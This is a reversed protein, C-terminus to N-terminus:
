VFTGLQSVVVSITLLSVLTTAAVIAAITEADKEYELALLFVNVATPMSQALVISQMDQGRVGLLWCMGWALLPAAVLKLATATLVTKGFSMRKGYGLQIGLAILIMPVAADGVMHVATDLGGPLRVDIVRFITALLIAWLVPLRAINAITARVSPAVGFLVPGVTWILVISIMFIVIARDLGAQGLALLAIPLGFNGNNGLLVSAVVGNRVPKALIRVVVAAVLGLVVTTGLYGLMLRGVDSASVSTDMISSFALAPTLAYLQVKNISLQNITFRRALLFGVGAIVFVPLMVEFLATLM